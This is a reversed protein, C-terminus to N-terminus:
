SGDKILPRLTDLGAETGDVDGKIVALNCETSTEFGVVQKLQFGLAEAIVAAGLFDDSGLGTASFVVTRGAKRVDDITKFPSKPGVVIVHPEYAIRGLWAMQTLDFKAAPTGMVQNFIMGAGNVIGITLGDPRAAYLKNTGTLGGGGIVNKVIAARVPLYKSIHKAVARSYTDFGGGVNYPCWFELVKGKFAKEAQGYSAVSGLLVLRVVVLWVPVLTRASTRHIM